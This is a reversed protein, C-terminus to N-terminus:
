RWDEVQQALRAADGDGNQAAVQLWHKARESDEDHTYCWKALDRAAKSDGANAKAALRAYEQRAKELKVEKPNSAHPLKLCGCGTQLFLTGLGLLAARLFARTLRM